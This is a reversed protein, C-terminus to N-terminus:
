PPGSVEDLKEAVLATVRAHAMEHVMHRVRFGRAALLAPLLSDALPRSTLAYALNVIMTYLDRNRLVAHDIVVLRGDSALVRGVEDVTDPAVIYPAPFVSVVTAFADDYFPLAQSRGLVLAADGRRRQAMRLMDPSLDLGVALRAQDALASLLYGPGSGLELVRGVGLHPIAARGWLPWEGRSVLWAIADYAWAFRTYLLRFGVQVLGAWARRLMPRNYVPLRSEPLGYRIQRFPTIIFINQASQSPLGM